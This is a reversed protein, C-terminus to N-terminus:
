AVVTERHCLLLSRSYLAPCALERKHHRHGCLRMCATLILERGPLEGPVPRESHQWEALKGQPDGAVGGSHQFVPPGGGWGANMHVRPTQTAKDTKEQIAERGRLGEAQM